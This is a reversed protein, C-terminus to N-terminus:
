IGYLEAMNNEVLYTSLTKDQDLYVDALLRGYKGTEDKFTQITVIKNLILSRVHDRVKLGEEREEGRIEPTDVNALRIKVGKRWIGMGLDIDATFTDGDYVGTIIAKYIYLKM